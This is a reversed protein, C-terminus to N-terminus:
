YYSMESFKEFSFNESKAAFEKIKIISNLFEFILFLALQQPCSAFGHLLHQHEVGEL